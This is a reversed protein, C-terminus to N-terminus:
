RKKKAEIFYIVKVSFNNNQDSRVSNGFNKFYDNEVDNSYLFSADKWVVNLFSGPAFQWTYVMDINFLNLNQNASGTFGSNADLKGTKEELKFYQKYQVSSLYHRARFTIGMKNTFNYKLSLIDEVTNVRRKGIIVDNGNMTAYGIGIPRPMFNLSHDISFKSNFRYRHTFNIDTGWAGYFNFFVRTVSEFSISYKKASNSEYGLGVAASANRRFMAGYKRPEYFDNQAPNFNVFLWYWNLKKTQFNVNSNIRAQMYQKDLGPIPTFLKQVNANFNLFVRNYWGKPETWRRGMWLGHTIYNNNTFYGMDNHSYNKDSLEQFVNFNFKGSTKGFYVLSSVGNINGGNSQIGMLQSYAIKGGLNYMNKKNNLDFLVASVNADYDKGGRWVNTNVFSVSSNHKLNQDLVIINYNTLPDTEFKRQDKSNIDEITAYQAKTIANLIGVGLGGKTRGSIKSANILKSETPNKIVEENAGLNNYVDYQHLPSGGIRRSYFLDGKSFLETGETFFSRNENYKVEFPTLNLVRNDSQVQGFDPILTADLTFAQNIGYKVDMGGNVQSTWNKIGAQNYPYHNAYMSFYPSFQLRLPPKIDKINTWHGAQTLFGNVNPDIPNWTVQQDTKRRRRTVHFGWTQVDKKAFRIAGYPIFMEFSWGNSHIVAGSKWVSNWSFDEGGNNSTPNSSMKADWQENLPTIFYEFGNLRDSYTDFIIGIFDNAGFGDRGKLETTISDKTNEYCFGGFYIGNDDYMLYAETRTQPNEKRGVKPRFEIFDDMRAAEKWAEDNILGDIKVSKTTRQAPLTKGVNVNQSYATFSVAIGMLCCVLRNFM